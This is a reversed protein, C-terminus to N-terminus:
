GQWTEDRNWITNPTALLRGKSLSTLTVKTTAFTFRDSRPQQLKSLFKLRDHQYLRRVEPALMGAEKSGPM